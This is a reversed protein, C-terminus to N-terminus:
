PQPRGSRKIDKFAFVYPFAILPWRIVLIETGIKRDLMIQLTLM